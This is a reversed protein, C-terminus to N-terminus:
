LYECLGTRRDKREILDVGDERLRASGVTVVAYECRQCVLQATPQHVDALDQPARDQQDRAQAARPIQDLLMGHARDRVPKSPLCLEIPQGGGLDGLLQHCATEMDHELAGSELRLGSGPRHGVMREFM